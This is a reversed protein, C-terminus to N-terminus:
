LNNHSKFCDAIVSFLNNRRIYESRAIYIDGTSLRFQGFGNRYINGKKSMDIRSKRHMLKALKFLIEEGIFQSFVWFTHTM